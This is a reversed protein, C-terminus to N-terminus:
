NLPKSLELTTCEKFENENDEYNEFEENEDNILGVEAMDTGARIKINKKTNYDLQCFHLEILELYILSGLFCFIEAIMGFLKYFRFGTNKNEQNLDQEEKKDRSILLFCLDVMETIFFYISNSCILYEPSLDKIIYITFIKNFFCFTTKLIFIIISILINNLFIKFYISYNDYYLINSDKDEKVHCIINPFKYEESIKEYNKTCPNFHPIISVIFCLITGLLNYLLLIKSPSIYKTDCLWKIKCFTYARLIIILFFIIIGIPIFAHYEKYLKPNYDDKFRFITSLIKFITCFFIIIIIGIKKHNYIPIGFLKLNIFAMFLIELMWYNLGKLGFVNFAKYLQMCLFLLVIIMFDYISLYKGELLDNQILELDLNSTKIKNSSDSKNGHKQKEQNKDQKKDQKKEYFFLLISGLFSIFYNFAQQILIDKPFKIITNAKTELFDGLTYDYIYKTFVYLWIYKYFKDYVGFSFYKKM